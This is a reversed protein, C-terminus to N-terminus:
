VINESWLENSCFTPAISYDESLLSTFENNRWQDGHVVVMSNVWFETFDSPTYPCRKNPHNTIALWM